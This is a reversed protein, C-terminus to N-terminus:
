EESEPPEPLPMWHTVCMSNFWRGSHVYDVKLNMYNGQKSYVLVWTFPDPLRDKVSVWTTQEKLKNYYSKDVTVTDDYM